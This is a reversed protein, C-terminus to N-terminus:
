AVFTRNAQMWEEQEGLMDLAENIVEDESRYAGSRLAAVVRDEQEPKLQISM